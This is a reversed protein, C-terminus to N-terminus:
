LVAAAVIISIGLVVAGSLIAAAINQKQIIEADLQGPTVLDFLKFGLLALVIGILGFVLTSTIAEVLTGPRWVDNPPAVAPDDAAVVRATNVLLVPLLVFLWRFYRLMVVGWSTQSSM